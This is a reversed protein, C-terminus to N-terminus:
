KKKSCFIVYCGFEPKFNDLDYMYLPKISFIFDNDLSKGCLEFLNKKRNEDLKLDININKNTKYSIGYIKEKKFEGSLLYNNIIFDRREYNINPNEKKLLKSEYKNLDNIEKIDLNENNMLERKRKLFKRAKDLKENTLDKESFKLKIVPIMRVNNDLWDFYKFASLYYSLPNLSIKESITLNEPDFLIYEINNQISYSISATDPQLKNFVYFFYNNKIKINFKSSIYGNLFNINDNLSTITFRENPKMMKNIIIKTLFFNYNEDTNKRLIGLDFLKDTKDELFILISEKIKLNKIKIDLSHIYEEKINFLTNLKQFSVFNIKENNLQMKNRSAWLYIGFINEINIFNTISNNSTSTENNIEIRIKNFSFLFFERIYDFAYNFSIKSKNDLNSFKIINEEKYKLLFYKFSIIDTFKIFKNLGMEESENMIIDYYIHFMETKGKNIFIKRLKTIIKNKMEKKFEIINFSYKHIIKHYYEYLNGFEMLLIRKHAELKNLDDESVNVLKIIYYYDLVQKEELLNLTYKISNIISNRIDTENISSIVIIKNFDNSDLINEIINNNDYKAKYHDIVIVEAINKIKKIIENFINMASDCYEIINKIEDYFNKAQNFDPIFHFMERILIKAIKKKEKEKLLNNITKINYYFYSSKHYKLYALITATKGIGKLGCFAMIREKGLHENLFKFFDKREKTYVFFNTKDYEIFSNELYCEYNLSLDKLSLNEGLKKNIRTFNYDEENLIANVYKINNSSFSQTGDMSKVYNNNEDLIEIKFEEDITQNIKFFQCINAIYLEKQTGDLFTFNIKHPNNYLYIYDGEEILENNNIENKIINKSKNYFEEFSIGSYTKFSLDEKNFAGVKVLVKRNM